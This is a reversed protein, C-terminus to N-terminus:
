TVKSIAKHKKLTPGLLPDKSVKEKFRDLKTRFCKFPFKVNNCRLAMLYGVRYPDRYKFRKDRCKNQLFHEDAAKFGQGLAVLTSIGTSIVDSHGWGDLISYEEPVLYHQFFHIVEHSLIVIEKWLAKRPNQELMELPARFAHIRFPKHKTDKIKIYKGEFINLELLKKHNDNTYALSKLYKVACYLYDEWDGKYADDVYWEICGETKDTEGFINYLKFKRTKQFRPPVEELLMDLTKFRFTDLAYEIVEGKREVEKYEPFVKLLADYSLQTIDQASFDLLESRKLLEDRKAPYAEELPIFMGALFRKLLPIFEPNEHPDYRVEGTKLYHRIDEKTKKDTM